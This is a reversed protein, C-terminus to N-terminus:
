TSTYYNRHCFAAEAEPVEPLFAPSARPNQFIKLGVCSQKNRFTEISKCLVLSRLQLGVLSASTYHPLMKKAPQM